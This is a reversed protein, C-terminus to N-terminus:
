LKFEPDAAILDQYSKTAKIQEDKMGGRKHHMVTERLIELQDAAEEKVQSQPGDLNSAGGPQQAFLPSPAVSEWTDKWADYQEDTLSDAYTEMKGVNAALVKGEDVLQKVFQKRANTMTEKHFNELFNLRNQVASFDTTQTGNVMFTFTANGATSATPEAPETGPSPAPESAPASPQGGDVEPSGPQNADQREEESGDKTGDTTPADPNTAPSAPDTDNKPTQAVTNEKLRNAIRLRVEHPNPANERGAYNFALMKLANEAQVADEKKTDAGIEDALGSDVAEQSNYWTEEIMLNRWFEVSQGASDSYISAITNSLKDLIDATDRMTAADGWAMSSGDHIMMTAAKTVIRKDGAQFIFSAASAALGDVIATVEAPHAKLANYIAVGDFIDGGPSNLHLEIKQTKINGLQKVFESAPTSDDFWSDGIVDYIYVLTTDAPGQDESAVHANEIRFWEQPKESKGARMQPSRFKPHM